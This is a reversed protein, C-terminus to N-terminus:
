GLAKAYLKSWRKPDAETSGPAEIRRAEFDWDGAPVQPAAKKQEPTADPKMGKQIRKLLSRAGNASQFTGVCYWVGADAQAVQLAEIFAPDTRSGSRPLTLDEPLSEVKEAAYTPRPPRKSKAEETPQNTQESVQEGNGTVPFGQEDTGADAEAVQSM